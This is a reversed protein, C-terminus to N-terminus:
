VYRALSDIIAAPILGGEGTVAPRTFERYHEVFNSIKEKDFRSLVVNGDLGEDRETYKRLLLCPKGLYYAEEQITGGDTIVFRSANLLHVFCGHSVIKFYSVNKMHELRVLLGHKRLQSITSGHQVFVVPLELGIKEILDMIFLLRRRSYINEMRHFTVLCFDRIEPVGKAEKSLSIRATEYGTNGPILVSKDRLGMRSLNDFAWQSPAFLLDSFRMAIIRIIEEPFPESWCFSRLGAEVHAVKVGGRKALYLGLLTSVTDGHILCIGGRDLFVNKKIWSSSLSKFFIGALWRIGQVITSVNRGRSLSVGPEDLGFEDRLDRSILSHQGLDILNYEVRREKLLLIVPAMKILQAKTGIAIHIM